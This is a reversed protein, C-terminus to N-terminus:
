KEGVVAFAGERNLPSTPKRNAEQEAAWKNYDGTEMEGLEMREDKAEAKKPNSLSDFYAIQGPGHVSKSLDSAKMGSHEVKRLGKQDLVFSFEGDHERNFSEVLSQISAKDGFPLAEMEEPEMKLVEELQKKSERVMIEGAEVEHRYPKGQREKEIERQLGGILERLEGAKKTQGMSEYDSARKEMGTIQRRHDLAWRAMERDEKRDSALAFFDRDIPGFQPEPEPPRNQEAIEEQVRKNEWMRLRSQYKGQGADDDPFQCKLPRTPFDPDFEELFNERLLELHEFYAERDNNYDGLAWQVHFPMRIEKGNTFRIGRPKGDEGMPYDKIEWDDTSM